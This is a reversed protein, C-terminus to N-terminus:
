PDGFVGLDLSVSIRDLQGNQRQIIALCARIPVVMVSELWVQEQVGELSLWGQVCKWLSSDRHSKGRQTGLHPVSPM